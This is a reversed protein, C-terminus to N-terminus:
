SHTRGRVGLCLPFIGEMYKAVLKTQLLHLQCGLQVLIYPEGGLCHTKGVQYIPPCKQIGWSKGWLELPEEVM